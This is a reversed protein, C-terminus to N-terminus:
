PVKLVAASEIIYSQIGLPACVLLFLYLEVGLLGEFSLM